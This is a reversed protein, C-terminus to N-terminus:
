RRSRMKSGQAHLVGVEDPRFPDSRVQGGPIHQAGAAELRDGVALDRGGPPPPIYEVVASM